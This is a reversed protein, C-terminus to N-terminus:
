PIPTGAAAEAADPRLTMRYLVLPDDGANRMSMRTGPPIPPLGISFRAAQEEGTTWGPPLDEGELTLGLTGEAVEMWVFPGAEQPPLASEPPLTLREVVLRGSGGPLAFHSSELLFEYRHGVPDAGDAAPILSEAVLGRLLTAEDPGSVRFAVDQDPAAPIYVDGASLQRETGAEIATLAGSEVVFFRPGELPVFVLERSGPDLTWRLLAITGFGTPLGDVPADLLTETVVTEAAPTGSMAPLLVPTDDQRGPLGPGFTLVSGALVLLVLAATALRASAWRMPILPRAPLASSRPAWPLPDSAVPSGVSDYASLSHTKVDPEKWRQHQQLERWVRERASDRTPAEGLAHLREVLDVTERDIAHPGIPARGLVLDDWLTNLADTNRLADREM